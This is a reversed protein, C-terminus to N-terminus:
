GNPIDCPPPYQFHALNYTPNAFTNILWTCFNEWGQRTAREAPMSRRRLGRHVLQVRQDKSGPRVQRVVHAPRVSVVRHAGRDGLVLM